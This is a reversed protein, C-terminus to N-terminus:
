RMEASNEPPCVVVRHIVGRGYAMAQDLQFRAGKSVIM